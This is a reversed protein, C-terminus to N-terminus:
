DTAGLVDVVLAIAKTSGESNRAAILILWGQDPADILAFGGPWQVSPAYRDVSRKEGGPSMVVERSLVPPLEETFTSPPAGVVGSIAISAAEDVLLYILRSEIVEIDWTTDLQAALETFVRDLRSLVVDETTQGFPGVDAFLGAIWGLLDDSM